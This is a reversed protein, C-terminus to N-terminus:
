SARAAAPPAPVKPSCLWVWLTRPPASPAAATADPAPRRSHVPRAAAAPAPTAPSSEASPLKRRVASPQKKLHLKWSLVSTVDRGKSDTAKKINGKKHKGKGEAFQFLEFLMFGVTGFFTIALVMGSTAYSVDFGFSKNKLYTTLIISTIFLVAAIIVYKLVKKGFSKM